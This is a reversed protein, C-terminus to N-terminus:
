VALVLCLGWWSSRVYWCHRTQIEITPFLELPRPQRNSLKKIFIMTSLILNGLRVSVMKTNLSGPPVHWTSGCVHIHQNTPRPLIVVVVMTIATAMGKAVGNSLNYGNTSPFNLNSFKRYVLGQVQKTRKTAVLFMATNM